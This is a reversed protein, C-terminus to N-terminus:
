YSGSGAKPRSNGSGGKPKPALKETAKKQNQDFHAIYKEYGQAKLDSYPVFRMAASNMCYRKGTPRPGDPFVHGLHSDAMKSRIEIRSMFLKTDAKQVINAPEIPQTFSPWGTGSKYKDLSSFLPEGSVVDVYLGVAKNNWYKNKFPRETGDQQTVQYQLPTLNKRLEEESPKVFQNEPSGTLFGVKSAATKTKPKTDGWLRQIYAQRGSGVFYRKYKWPNTLYYDQHYEEAPYFKTAKTLETAFPKKYKGSAALEAMVEQAQKKQEGSHYFVGPRYQSGRDAFQGQGDTPDMSRFFAKLLEKYSIVKPDFHIRVAETHGSIGASVQRYTPNRITGATYGSIAASVGPVDQLKAEVCWFCGGAVTAIQEGRPVRSPIPAAEVPAVNSQWALGVTLVALATLGLLRQTSTTM